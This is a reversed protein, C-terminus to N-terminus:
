PSEHEGGTSSIKDALKEALHSQLMILARNLTELDIDMGALSELMKEAVLLSANRAVIEDRIEQMMQDLKEYDM